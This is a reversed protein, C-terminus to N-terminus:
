QPWLVATVAITLSTRGPTRSSTKAQAAADRMRPQTQKTSM